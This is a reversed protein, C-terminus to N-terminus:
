WQHPDPRRRRVALIRGLRPGRARTTSTVSLRPRIPADGHFCVERRSFVVCVGVLSAVNGSAVTGPRWCSTSKMTFSLLLNASLPPHPHATNLYSVADPVNM